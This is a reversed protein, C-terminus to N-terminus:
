SCVSVSTSPMQLLKLFIDCIVKAMLTLSGDSAVSDIRMENTYGQYRFAAVHRGASLSGSSITTASNYPKTFSFKFSKTAGDISLVISFGTTAHTVSFLTQDAAVSDYTIDVLASFGGHSVLHLTKGTSSDLSSFSGSSFDLSWLQSGDQTRSISGGTQALESSCQFVNPTLAISADVVLWASYGAGYGHM